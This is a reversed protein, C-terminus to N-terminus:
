LAPLGGPLHFLLKRASRLHPNVPSMTTRGALLSRGSGPATSPAGRPSLKGVMM